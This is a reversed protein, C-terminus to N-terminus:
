NNKGYNGAVLAQQLAKLTAWRNRAALDAQDPWSEPNAMRFNQGATDLISQIQAVTTESLQRFTKIGLENLLEAIKPGIGEIVELDDPGKIAFGAARAADVDIIQVQKLRAVEADRTALSKQLEVVQREATAM